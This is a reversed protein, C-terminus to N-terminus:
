QLFRSGGQPCYAESRGPDASRSSSLHSFCPGHLPDDALRDKSAPQSLGPYTDGFFHILHIVEATLSRSCHKLLRLSASKQCYSIKLMSSAGTLSGCICVPFGPIVLLLGGRQGVALLVFTTSLSFIQSSWFSHKTAFALGFLSTDEAKIFCFEYFMLYAAEGTDM